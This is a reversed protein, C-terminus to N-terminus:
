EEEFKYGKEEWAKRITLNRHIFKDRISKPVRNLPCSFNICHPCIIFQIVIIWYITGISAFILMIYAQSIILLIIPIVIFLSLAIIFQVKESTSLPYPNYPVPKYFGYNAYCHLIKGGEGYYPCHSCLIRPEWVTFFIVMYTIWIGLYIIFTIFDLAIFLGIIAPIVCALWGTVFWYSYKKDYHCQLKENIECENCISPDKWICM